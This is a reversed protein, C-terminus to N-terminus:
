LPVLLVQAAALKMRSLLWQRQRANRGLITELTSVLLKDHLAKAAQNLVAAAIISENALM